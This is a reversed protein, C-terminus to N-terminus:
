EYEFIFNQFAQKLERLAHVDGQSEALTIGQEYTTRAEALAEAEALSAAAHFYTPLYDPFDRLLLRFTDLAEEERQLSRYELALAYYNFPDAPEAAIFAHLQELRNM